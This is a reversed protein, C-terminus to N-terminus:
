QLRVGGGISAGAFKVGSNVVTQPVVVMICLNPCTSAPVDIEADGSEYPAAVTAAAGNLPVSVTPSASNYTGTSVDSGFYNFANKITYNQGNALGCDTLNVNISTPASAAYVVVNCRGSEYSNPRVIVTDPLNGSNITSSADKGSSSQWNAFTQNTALTTNGFKTAGTATNYYTNNNWTGSGTQPALINEGVNFIRNGTFTLTTVTLRNFASGGGGIYNDTFTGTTIGAGFGFAVNYSANGLHYIHSENVVATPSVVSDPGYVMGRENNGLPAGANAIISGQVDGGVYPGTVGYFQAGNMFNNLSMSEYLRSYGSSNELYYGPGSGREYTNANDFYHNGNNYSIVGYILTNSSSSGIFFGDLNDHVLLNIYSNGTGTPSFVGAGRMAHYYGCCGEGSVAGPELDRHTWSNRIEFDRYTTDSGNVRLQSGGLRVVAGATHSVAGGINPAWNRNVTIQTSSDVTSIQMLETDIGVTAGSVMGDTSGVVITTVSSNITNTLTTTKDGDIIAWEGAFSRVTCGDLTSTFKGNYTGANGRLWFTNGNCKATDNLLTQLACPSGLTCATGSGSPSAYYDQGAAVVAFAFCLLITSLTRKM